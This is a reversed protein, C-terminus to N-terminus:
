SIVEADSIIEEAKAVSEKEVDNVVISSAAEIESNVAAREAAVAEAGAEEIEEAAANKNKSFASCIEKWGDQLRETFKKEVGEAGGKHYCIGGVVLAALAILSAAIGVKKGTSTKNYTDQEPNRELSNNPNAKYSINKAQTAETAETQPVEQVRALNNDLYISM